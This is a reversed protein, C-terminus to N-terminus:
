FGKPITWLVGVKIPIVTEKMNWLKKLERALDLYKDMLVSEKSKIRYDASVAFGVLNFFFIEKILVLDPRSQTILQIEFDCLIKRTENELAYEPKHM